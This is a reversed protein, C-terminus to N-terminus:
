SLELTKKFLNKRKKILISSSLGEIFSITEVKGGYSLVHSAGVIESVKYDDGKVLIDPSILEILKEPTDESFPIVLDVFRLAELTKKRFELPNLPRGEGKLKKISADTNLGVILFDGLEKAKELYSIHGYHLLDFCGNTFVIKKGDKQLALIEKLSPSTEQYLEKKLEEKTVAQTRWKSVALSAALNAHYVSDKASVKSALCLAMIAVVTDGAGSVDYVEKKRAKQYFSEGNKPSYLMGEPGLTLLINELEFKQRLKQTIEEYSLKENEKLGLAQRAEILNPTILSAGKYSSFDKLKPDVITKIRLSKALHIIQLLFKKELFGKQYDSLVVLDPKIKKILSLTREKEEETLSTKKEWDLRLLQQRLSTIRTKKITESNKNQILFNTTIDDQELLKKLVKSNEDEGIGGILFTEGGCLKINRATNSAGGLSYSVGSVKHIPVPAEPSVRLVSGDIYEDLILDGLVLIRPSKEQIWPLTM